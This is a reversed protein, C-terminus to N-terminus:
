NCLQGHVDYTLFEVKAFLYDFTNHKTNADNLKQGMKRLRASHRTFKNGLFADHCDTPSLPSVDIIANHKFENWERRMEQSMYEDHIQDQNLTGFTRESSQAVLKRTDEDLGVSPGILRADGGRSRM